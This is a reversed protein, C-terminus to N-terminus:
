PFRAESQYVKLAEQAEAEEAATKAFVPHDASLYGRFDYNYKVILRARSYAKPETLQERM